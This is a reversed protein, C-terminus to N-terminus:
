KEVHRKFNNLIAQWGSQQQEISHTEEADFSVKVTVSENNQIFEIKAKREGFSYEILNNTVINTYIGAFDFGFSGDKAEMRSSFEGGVRLDVSAKTTHWDDSAANWQMIDEPTTYASWVKEISANVNTEVTINM